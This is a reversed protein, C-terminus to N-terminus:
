WRKMTRKPTSTGLRTACKMLLWRMWLVCNSTKQLASWRPPSLKKKVKWRESAIQCLPVQSRWHRLLLGRWWEVWCQNNIIVVATVDSKSNVKSVFWGNENRPPEPKIEHCLSSFLRWMIFTSLKSILAITCISPGSSIRPLKPFCCNLYVLSFVCINSSKTM